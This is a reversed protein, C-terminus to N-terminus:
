IHALRARARANKGSGHSLTGFACFLWSCPNALLNKLFITAKRGVDHRHAPARSRTHSCTYMDEIFTEVQAFNNQAIIQILYNNARPALSVLYLTLKVM